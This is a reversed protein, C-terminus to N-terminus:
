SQPVIQVFSSARGAHSMTVLHARALRKVVTTVADMPINLTQALAGVTAGTVSLRDLIEEELIPTRITTRERSAAEIEADRQANNLLLQKVYPSHSIHNSCWPKREQTPARCEDVMCHTSSVRDRTSGVPGIIRFTSMIRM